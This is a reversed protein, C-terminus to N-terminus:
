GRMRTGEREDEVAREKEDGEREDEVGRKGRM